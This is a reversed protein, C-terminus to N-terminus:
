IRAKLHKRTRYFESLVFTIASEKTIMIKGNCPRFYRVRKERIIQRAFTDCINLMAVFEATTMVDPYDAFLASYYDRDKSKEGM